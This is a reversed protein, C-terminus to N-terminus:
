PQQCSSLKSNIDDLILKLTESKAAFEVHIDVEEQPASTSSSAPNKKKAPKQALNSEATKAKNNLNLNRPSQFNFDFKNERVNKFYEIFIEGKAKRRLLKAEKASKLKTQKCPFFTKFIIFM